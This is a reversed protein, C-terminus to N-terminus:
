KARPVRSTKPKAESHETELVGEADQARETDDLEWQSVNTKAVYVKRNTNKNVIIFDIGDYFIDIDRVDPSQPYYFTLDQMNRLVKAVPMAFRIMIVKKM